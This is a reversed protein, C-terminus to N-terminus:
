LRSYACILVYWVITYTFICHVHIVQNSQKNSYAYRRKFVTPAPGIDEVFNSQDSLAEPQKLDPVGEGEQSPHPRKRSGVAVYTNLFNVYSLNTCTFM